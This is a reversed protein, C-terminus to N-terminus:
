RGSASLKRSDRKGVKPVEQPVKQVKVKAAQEQNLADLREFARELSEPSPHVYKQSMAISAHGAIRQITFADAGSEGLRTLMTHRLSHIVFEKSLGQDERIRSHQHDLSTSLSHPATAGWVTIYSLCTGRREM